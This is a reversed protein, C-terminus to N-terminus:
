PRLSGVYLYMFMGLGVSLLLPPAHRYLDFRGRIPKGSYRAEVIMGCAYFSCFAALGIIGLAVVVMVVSRGHVKDALAAVGGLSFLCLTTVSKLYDYLMAEGDTGGHGDDDNM